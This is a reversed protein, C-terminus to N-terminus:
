SHRELCIDFCYKKVDESVHLQEIIDLSTVSFKANSAVSSIKKKIKELKDEKSFLYLHINGKDKLVRMADDLFYDAETPHPMIIRDYRKGEKELIKLEEKADSNYLIIKENNFGNFVANEQAYEHADKNIEIGTVHSAKSNKAIVLPYPGCGSFLVLVDEGAKVHSAIRKRENATRASFYVKSIDVKINVGNESHITELSGKGALIKYAQKREKGVYKSEKSVVIRIGKNTAMLAKAIETEYTKMNPFITIIGIDGVQEYARSATDYVERPLVKQLERRFSRTRRNERLNYEGIEFDPTIEQIKGNIGKFISRIPLVIHSSDKMPLYSDDYEKKRKLMGRIERGYNQPVRVGLSM